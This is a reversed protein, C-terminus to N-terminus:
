FYFAFLCRWVSGLGVLSSLIGNNTSPYPHVCHLPFVGPATLTNQRITLFIYQHCYAKPPPRFFSSSIYGLLSPRRHPSSLTHTIPEFVLFFMVCKFFQTHLPSFLIHSFLASCISFHGLWSFDHLGTLFITNNQVLWSKSYDNLIIFVKWVWQSYLLCKLIKSPNTFFNHSKQAQSADVFNTNMGPAPDTGGTKKNEKSWSRGLPIKRMASSLYALPLYFYGTNRWRLQFEACQFDWGFKM